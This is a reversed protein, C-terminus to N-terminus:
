GYTSSELRGARGFGRCGFECASVIRQPRRYHRRKLQRFINADFLASSDWIGIKREL